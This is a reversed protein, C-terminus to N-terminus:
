LAETSSSGALQAITHAERGRIRRSRLLREHGDSEGDEDGAGHQESGAASRQGGGDARRAAGVTETEVAAGVSLVELREVDDRVIGVRQVVDVRREVVAGVRGLGVDHLEIRVRDNEPRRLLDVIWSRVESGSPGFVKVISEISLTPLLLRDDTVNLMMTVAALM